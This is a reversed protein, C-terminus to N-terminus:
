VESYYYRFRFYLSGSLIAAFFCWVSVFTIFYFAQALLFSILIILGFCRLWNQSSLFFPIVIIFLY